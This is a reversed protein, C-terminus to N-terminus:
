AWDTFAPFHYQSEICVMWWGIMDSKSLDLRQTCLDDCFSRSPSKACSGGCTKQWWAQDKKPYPSILLICCLIGDMTKLLNAVSNKNINPEMDPCCMEANIVPQSFRQTQFAKKPPNGEFSMGKYPSGFLCPPQSCPHRITKWPVWPWKLTMKMFQRQMM